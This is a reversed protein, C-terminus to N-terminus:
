RDRLWFELSEPPPGACGGVRAAGKAKTVPVIAEPDPHVLRTGWAPRLPQLGPVNGADGSRPSGRRGGSRTEAGPPPAAPRELRKGCGREYADRLMPRLRPRAEEQQEHWTTTPAYWGDAAPFGDSGTWPQHKATRWQSPIPGGIPRDRVTVPARSYGLM